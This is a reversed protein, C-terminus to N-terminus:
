EETEGLQYRVFRRIVINEGTKTKLEDLLDQVAEPITAGKGQAMDESCENIDLTLTARWLPGGFEIDGDLTPYRGARQWAGLQALAEDTNM